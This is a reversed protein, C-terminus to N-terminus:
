ARLLVYLAGTGGDIGKASAFAMVDHHRKLWDNVASKLIAGRGGSRMGKGHIIRVCRHREARSSEIFDAVWRRAALQDLGHLDLEAGVAFLGRRLRRLEQERVGARRYALREEAAITAAVLPLPDPLEAHAREGARAPDTRIRQPLKRPKSPAAKAAHKLPKVDRVAARFANADAATEGGSDSRKVM